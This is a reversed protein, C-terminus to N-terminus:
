LWDGADDRAAPPLQRLARVNVMRVFAERPVLWARGLKMAPIRGRNIARTVVRPVVGLIGAVYKVTMLAPLYVGREMLRDAMARGVVGDAEPGEPRNAEGRAPTHAGERTVDDDDDFVDFKRVM